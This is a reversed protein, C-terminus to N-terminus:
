DPSCACGAIRGSLNVDTGTLPGTMFCLINDPGLPDVDPGNDFVYKAGLGRSGIYKRADEEDIPKYEIQGSSLDVWAVKNCYGGFNM